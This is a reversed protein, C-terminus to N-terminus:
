ALLRHASAPRGVTGWAVSSPAKVIAEVTSVDVEVAAAKGLLEVSLVLRFANKKRVLIGEFGELPGSRVRVWDGCRLFPYPEILVNRKIAEEIMRIEDESISAAQGAVEVFRHVGPTMLVDIRRELDGQLFVYCPFLPLTLAMNRDKWRRRVNYLPLFTKFGKNTLIHSVAKEHQHRTYLAYWSRLSHAYGEAKEEPSLLM